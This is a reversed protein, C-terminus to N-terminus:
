SHFMKQINFFSALFLYKINNFTSRPLALKECASDDNAKYNQQLLENERYM